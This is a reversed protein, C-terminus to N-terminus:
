GDVRWMWSLQLLSCQESIGNREVVFCLDAQSDCSSKVSLSRCKCGVIIEHPTQTGDPSIRNYLAPHKVWFSLFRNFMGQLWIPLAIMSARLARRVNHLCDFFGWKWYNCVFKQRKHEEWLVRTVFDSPIRSMQFPSSFFFISSM